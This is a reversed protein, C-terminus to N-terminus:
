GRGVRKSFTVFFSLYSLARRSVPLQLPKGPRFGQKSEGVAEMVLGERRKQEVPDGGLIIDAEAVQALYLASKFRDPLKAFQDPTLLTLNGAFMFMGNKSVYQTSFSGEAVFNLSDQGYNINSNLQSFNLQCIKQRADILAAVRDQETAAAWGLINPISLATFQAQAYTQFSNVGVQLVEKAEVVYVFKVSITNGDVLCFLEVVRLSRVAGNALTNKDAPVTVIAAIDGSLFGSLAVQTVLEAGSEDTVRYQVSTASLSNGDKDQIPVVVQVPNGTLYANM